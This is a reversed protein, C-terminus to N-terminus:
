FKKKRFKKKIMVQSSLHLICILTKQEIQVSIKQFKKTTTKKFLMRHNEANESSRM